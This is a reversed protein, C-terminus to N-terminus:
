ILDLRLESCEVFSSSYMLATWIAQAAMSFFSRGRMASMADSQPRGTLLAALQPSASKSLTEAM